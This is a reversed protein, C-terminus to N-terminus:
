HGRAHRQARGYGPGLLLGSARLQTHCGSASRLALVKKEGVEVESSGGVKLVAVGGPFWGFLVLFLVGGLAM